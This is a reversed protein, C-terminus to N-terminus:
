CRSLMFHEAVPARAGVRASPIDENSWLDCAVCPSDIGPLSSHLMGHDEPLLRANAKFIYGQVVTELVGHVGDGPCCAGPKADMSKEPRKRLLPPLWLGGPSPVLGQGGGPAPPLCELTM